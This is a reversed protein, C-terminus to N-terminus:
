KDYDTGLRYLGETTSFCLVSSHEMNVEYNKTLQLSQFEWMLTSIHQLHLGVKKQAFNATLPEFPCLEAAPSCCSHIVAGDSSM